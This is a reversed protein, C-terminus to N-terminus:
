AEAYPNSCGIRNGVGLLRKDIKALYIEGVSGNSITWSQSYGLASISGQNAGMPVDTTTEGMLRNLINCSVLHKVEESADKNYSDIVVAADELLKKCAATESENFVRQMRTEIDEVTAYTM